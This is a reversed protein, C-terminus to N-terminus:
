EVTSGSYLLLNSVCPDKLPLPTSDNSGRNIEGFKRFISENSQFSLRASTVRASIKLIDWTCLYYPHPYHVVGCVLGLIDEVFLCLLMM